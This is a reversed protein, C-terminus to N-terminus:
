IQTDARALLLREIVAKHGAKCAVHLPTLGLCKQDVACGGKRILREVEDANGRKCALHLPMM